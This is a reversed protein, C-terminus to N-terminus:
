RIVDSCVNAVRDANRILALAEKAGKKKDSAMAHFPVEEAATVATGILDFLIGVSMVIILLIFSIVLNNVNEVLETSLMNFIASLTFTSIFVIFLWKKQSINQNKKTKQKM